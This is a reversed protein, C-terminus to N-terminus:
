RGMEIYVKDKRGEWDTVWRFAFGDKDLQVPYKKNFNESEIYQKVNGVQAKTINVAITEIIKWYDQWQKDTLETNNQHMKILESESPFTKLEESTFINHVANMDECMSKLSQAHSILHYFYQEPIELIKM